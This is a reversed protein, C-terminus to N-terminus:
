QYRTRLRGTAAVVAAARGRGEEVAEMAVAVEARRAAKCAAGNLAGRCEAGTADVRYALASRLSGKEEMKCVVGIDEQDVQCVVGTHEQDMVEEKTAADKSEGVLVSEM